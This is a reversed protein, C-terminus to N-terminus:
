FLILITKYEIKHIITNSTSHFRQVEKERSLVSHMQDEIIQKICSPSYLTLVPCISKSIVQKYKSLNKLSMQSLYLLFNLLKRRWKDHIGKFTMWSLHYIVRIYKNILAQSIANIYEHKPTTQLNIYLTSEWCNIDKDRYLCIFLIKHNQISSTSTRNLRFKDILINCKNYVVINLTEDQIADIEHSRSIHSYWKPKKNSWVLKERETVPITKRCAKKYLSANQRSSYPENELVTKYKFFKM